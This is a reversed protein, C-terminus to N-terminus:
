GGTIMTHNVSADRRSGLAHVENTFQEEADEVTKVDTAFSMTYFTDTHALAAQKRNAYAPLVNHGQLLVPEGDIFVSVDGHVIVTTDIKVLAGAVLVGAPIHVTRHYLGAHLVHTTVLDVKDESPLAHMARELDYVQQIGADNQTIATGM